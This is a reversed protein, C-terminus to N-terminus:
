MVGRQLGKFIHAIIDVTWGDGLMNYRRTNSVCNTYGEPVNQLREYEIPTLKRCKGNHFVKKQRNGGTCTTLTGSKFYPSYVRKLIDHGNIDLTAIVKKGLGYYEFSEDYWFDMRSSNHLKDVEEKDQMIDKLVLGKDQPKKNFPINAWYYRKRDQASVSASDLMLPWTKLAKTIIDKDEDQMSEVNELLFYVDSNNNNRIWELIRMYEYFLSSKSGQLGQNYQGRNIVARSLNQCPTGGIVMDIKPLNSLTEKTIGAVDGLQITDPFNDQTVKISYKNIESAYYNGVDIGTRELAIQGCSMGDFLSLVNISMMGKPTNSYM